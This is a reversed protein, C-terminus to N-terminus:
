LYMGLQPIYQKWFRFFGMPMSDKEQNYFSGSAVNKKEGSFTYRLMDVDSSGQFFNVVM